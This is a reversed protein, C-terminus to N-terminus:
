RSVSPPSGESKAREIEGTILAAPALADPANRKLAQEVEILLRQDAGAAFDPTPAKSSPVFLFLCLVAMIAAPAWVLVPRRRLIPVTLPLKAAIRGRQGTWFADPREAAARLSESFLRLDNKFEGSEIEQTKMECGLM